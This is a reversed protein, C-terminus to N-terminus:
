RRGKLCDVVLPHICFMYLVVSVAAIVAARQWERPSDHLFASWASTVFVVSAISVRPIESYLMMLFCAAQIPVVVFASWGWFLNIWAFLMAEVLAVSGIGLMFGGIVAAAFLPIGGAAGLIGSLFSHAQDLKNLGDDQQTDNKAM